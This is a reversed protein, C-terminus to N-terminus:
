ITDLFILVTISLYPHPFLSSERSKSVFIRFMALRMLCYMTEVFLKTHGNFGIDIDFNCLIDYKM